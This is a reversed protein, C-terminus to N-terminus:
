IGGGQEWDPMFLVGTRAQSMLTRVYGMARFLNGYIRKAAERQAVKENRDSAAMAVKDFTLTERSDGLIGPEAIIVTKTPLLKARWRKDHAVIGYLVGSELSALHYEVTHNPFVGDGTLQHVITMKRYFSEALDQYQEDIQELNTRKTRGKSPIDPIFEPSRQQPDDPVKKDLKEM